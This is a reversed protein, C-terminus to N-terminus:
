PIGQPGPRPTPAPTPAPTPSVANAQAAAAAAPDIPASSDSGGGFTSPIYTIAGSAAQQAGKHFIIFFAPIAALALAAFEKWHAKVYGLANRMRRRGRACPLGSRAAARRVAGRDPLGCLARLARGM